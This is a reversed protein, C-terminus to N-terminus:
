KANKDGLGLLDLIRTKLIKGSEKINELSLKPIVKHTPKANPIINEAKIKIKGKSNLLVLTDIINAIQLWDDGWRNTSYYYYQM